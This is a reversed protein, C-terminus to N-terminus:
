TQGERELCASAFDRIARIVSQLGRFRDTSIQERLATAELFRPTYAAVEGPSRGDLLGTVIALMGRIILAESDARVHIRGESHELVLWVGSQCGHVRTEETREEEAVHPMDASIALLYEYQLFWDGLQNLDDIYSQELEPIRLEEDTM